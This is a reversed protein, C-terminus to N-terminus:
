ALWNIMILWSWHFSQINQNTEFLNKKTEGPRLHSLHRNEPCARRLKWLRRLASPVPRHHLEPLKRLHQAQSCILHFFVPATAPHLQPQLVVTRIIGRTTQWPPYEARQLPSDSVSSRAIMYVFTFKYYISHVVTIDTIILIVVPPMGITGNRDQYLSHLHQFLFLPLIM